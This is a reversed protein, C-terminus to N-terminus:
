KLWSAADPRRKIGSHLRAAADACRFVGNAALGSVVVMAITHLGIAALAPLLSASATIEGTAANGSCISFLSPLLMLGAGHVTAMMFSWLALGAHGAPKRAVAPLRKSLHLGAAVVFLGAAMFQLAVRDMRLGWVLAAAVLGTAGAHGVAIPVLARMAQMRDHSRIGWAAAFMWGTAPNLGHLAGAGAVAMWPWLSNWLSTM